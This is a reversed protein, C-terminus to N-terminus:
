EVRFADAPQIGLARRAPVWCAILGSVLLPLIVAPVTWWGTTPVRFSLLARAQMLLVGLLTGIAIGAVLYAGASGLVDAVIRRPTAGLAVRIGIERTRRTVAFSLLAYVSVVSLGLAAAGLSVMTSAMGALFAQEDGGIQEIPVVERLRIAPDVSVIAARLPQALRLPLDNTKVILRFERRPQLPVYFGAGASPDGTSIGLDPVVGVIERWVPPTDSRPSHDRIRRGLPSAGGFHLRVFSENVLVVPLARPANDADTFLRGLIAHADLSEFFGTGVGVGPARLTGGISEGPAADIEVVMLPPDRRPVHTAAGANVVGPLGRVANLVGATLESLSQSPLNVHATLLQGARVHAPGEVYALLGRAMSVAGSLLGVALAIQVAIMVGATRGFMNGSATRSGHQLTETLVGRTVIVPRRGHSTDSGSAREFSFLRRPAPRATPVLSRVDRLRHQLCSIFRTLRSM